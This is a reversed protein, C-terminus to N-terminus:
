GRNAFRDGLNNLSHATDPHDPGLVKQRIALGSRTKEGASGQDGTAGEGARVACEAQKKSLRVDAAPIEEQHYDM